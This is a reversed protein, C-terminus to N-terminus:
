PVNLKEMNLKCTENFIIHAISKNLKMTAKEMSRFLTEINGHSHRFIILSVWKIFYKNDLNM